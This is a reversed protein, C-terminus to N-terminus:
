KMRLPSPQPLFLGKDGECDQVVRSQCISSLAKWWGIGCKVILCESWWQEQNGHTFMVVSTSLTGETDWHGSRGTQAAMKMRLETTSNNRYVHALGHIGVGFQLFCFFWVGGSSDM